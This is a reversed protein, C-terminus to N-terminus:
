GPPHPHRAPGPEDARQGRPALRRERARDRAGRYFWQLALNLAVSTANVVYLWFVKDLPAGDGALVIKATAGACYGTLIVLTFVLGKGEPTRLRLMRLNALPWAIGFCVLMTAELLQAATPADTM